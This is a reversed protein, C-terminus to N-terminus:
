CILCISLELYTHRHFFPKHKNAFGVRLPYPYNTPFYDTASMDLVFYEPM